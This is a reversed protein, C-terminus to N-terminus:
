NLYDAVRNRATTLAKSCEPSNILSNTERDVGVGKKLPALNYNKYSLDNYEDKFADFDFKNEFASYFKSVKLAAGTGIYYIGNEGVPSYFQLPIGWYSLGFGDVYKSDRESLISKVKSTKAFGTFQSFCTSLGNSKNTKHVFIVYPIPLVQKLENTIQVGLEYSGNSVVSRGNSGTSVGNFTSFQDGILWTGDLRDKELSNTELVIYKVTESASEQIIERGAYNEATSSERQCYEKKQLDSSKINDITFSNGLKNNKLSSFDM